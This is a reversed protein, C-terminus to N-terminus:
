SGMVEFDTDIEKLQSNNKATEIIDLLQSPNLSIKDGSKMGGIDWKGYELELEAVKTNLETLQKYQNGISDVLKAYAEYMKGTCGFKLEGELKTMVMRAQTILTKLDERIFEKDELLGARAKVELVNKKQEIIQVEDRVKMLEKTDEDPDFDADFKDNLKDIMDDM